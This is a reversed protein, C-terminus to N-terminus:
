KGVQHCLSCMQVTFGSHYQSLKQAGLLGNKHCSLCTGAIKHAVDNPTLPADAILAYYPSHCALCTKDSYHESVVIQPFDSPRSELKSHCQACLEGTKDVEVVLQSDDVHAQSPGHCSECDFNKHASDLWDNYIDQHCSQCRTPEGYEIGLNAVRETSKDQFAPISTGLVVRIGIFLVVAL